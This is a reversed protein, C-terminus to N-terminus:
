HRDRPAASRSISPSIPTFELYRVARGHRTALETPRTASAAGPSVCFSLKVRCAVHVHVHVHVHVGTGTLM